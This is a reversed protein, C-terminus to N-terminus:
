ILNGPKLIYKTLFDTKLDCGRFAAESTFKVKSVLGTASLLM